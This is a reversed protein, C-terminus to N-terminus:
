LGAGLFARIEASCHVAMRVIACFLAVASWWHACWGFWVNVGNVGIRMEFAPSMPIVITVVCSPCSRIGHVHEILDFEYIM